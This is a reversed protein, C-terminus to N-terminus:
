AAWRWSAIERACAPRTRPAARSSTPSRSTTPATSEEIDVGEIGDGEIDESEIGGGEIDESEIGRGKIDESETGEGWHKVKQLVFLVQIEIPHKRM